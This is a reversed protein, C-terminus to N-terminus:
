LEVLLMEKTISGTREFDLADFLIKVDRSSLDNIKSLGKELENYSLSGDHNNDIIMYM